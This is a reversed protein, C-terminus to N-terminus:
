AGGCGGRPLPSAGLREQGIERVIRFDGIERPAGPPLADGPAGEIAGLFAFQSRLEDALDPHAAMVEEPTVPEGRDRGDQWEGLIAAIREDREM